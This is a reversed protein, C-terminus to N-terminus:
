INFVVLFEELRMSSLLWLKNKRESVEYFLISRQHHEYHLVECTFSYEGPQIPIMDLQQHMEGRDFCKIQWIIKAPTQNLHILLNLTSSFIMVSTNKMMTQDIDNYQM